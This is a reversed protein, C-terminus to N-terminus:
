REIVNEIERHKLKVEKRDAFKENRGVNKLKEEVQQKCSWVVLAMISEYSHTAYKTCEVQKIRM